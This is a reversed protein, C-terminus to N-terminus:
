EWMEIFNDSSVDLLKSAYKKVALLSDENLSFHSARGDVRKEVLSDNQLVKLHGSVTSKSGDIEKVIDSFNSGGKVQYLIPGRVEHNLAALSRDMSKEVKEPYFRRYGHFKRERVKLNKVHYNITTTSCDLDRQLKRLHIGPREHVRQSIKSRM